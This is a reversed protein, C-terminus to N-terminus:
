LAIGKYTNKKDWMRIKHQTDMLYPGTRDLMGAARGYYRGLLRYGLRRSRM